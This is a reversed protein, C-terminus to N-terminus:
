SSTIVLANGKALLVGPGEARSDEHLRPVFFASVMVAEGPGMREDM